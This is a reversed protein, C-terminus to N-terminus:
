AFETVSRDELPRSISTFVSLLKGVYSYTRSSTRQLGKGSCRIGKSFSFFLLIVVAWHLWKGSKWVSFLPFALLSVSTMEGSHTSSLFDYVQYDWQCVCLWLISIRSGIRFPILYLTISNQCLCSMFFCNFACFKEKTSNLYLFNDLKNHFSGRVSFSESIKNQFCSFERFPLITPRKTQQRRFKHPPFRIEGQM